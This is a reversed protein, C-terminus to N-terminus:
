QLAAGGREPVAVGPRLQGVGDGPYQRYMGVAAAKQRRRLSRNQHWGVQRVRDDARRVGFHAAKIDLAVGHGPAGVLAGNQFNRM